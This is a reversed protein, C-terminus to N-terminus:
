RSPSAGQGAALFPFDASPRHELWGSIRGSSVSVAQARGQLFPLIVVGNFFNTEGRLYIRGDKQIVESALARRQQQLSRGRIAAGILGFLCLVAGALLLLAIRQPAACSGAFPKLGRNMVIRELSHAAQTGHENALLAM